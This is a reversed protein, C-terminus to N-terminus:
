FSNRSCCSTRPSVSQKIKKSVVRVAYFVVCRVIGRQRPFMNVSGNVLFFLTFHLCVWLDNSIARIAYFVVSGVIRNRTNKTAPGHKGLGQNAVIPPYVYLCVSHHSPNVFYATLIAEPAMIFIGLKMFIPESM